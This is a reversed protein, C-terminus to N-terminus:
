VEEQGRVHLHIWCVLLNKDTSVKVAELLLLATKEVNWCGNEERPRTFLAIRAMMYGELLQLGAQGGFGEAYCNTGQRCHLLTTQIDFYKCSHRVRFACAIYSRLILKM